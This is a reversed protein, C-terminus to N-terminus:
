GPWYGFRSFRAETALGSTDMAFMGV